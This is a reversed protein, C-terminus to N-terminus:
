GTVTVITNRGEAKARYLAQDAEAKLREPTCDPDLRRTAVGISTTVLPSVSSAEHRIAAAALLDTFRRAVALAQDRDCGPLVAAFEEGGYRAALDQAGRVSGELSAAVVKLTEDGAPHGYRDNFAKFMDVDIMLLAIHREPTPEDPTQGAGARREDGHGDGPGHCAGALFDEFGRRNAIGTLGDRMVSRRLEANVRELERTRRVVLQELSAAHNRMERASCIMEIARPLEIRLLESLQHSSTELDYLLIGRERGDISLPQVLLDGHALEGRIETPLLRHRPYVEDMPPDIRGHRYSVALVTPRDLGRAAGSPGGAAPDDLAIFCRPIGVQPLCAGLAEAVEDLTRCGAMTRSLTLWREQLITRAQLRLASQTVTEVPEDARRTSARVVLQSAVRLDASIRRGAMQRLLLRGAEYGQDALHQDVTTLPPWSTSSDLINDYGSVLVDDPVRLGHEIVASLAGLASPDNLAVIADVDPRRELVSNVREYTPGSLFLGDVVLADDFALGRRECEQRVIRERIVSDVYGPVGRVLMVRKVGCEDLLHTTLSRMGLGTDGHVRPRDRFKEGVTVVPVDMDVLAEILDPRSLVLADALAIVGRSAGTRILDLVLEPTQPTGFGAIVVALLPIRQDDLARRIGSIVRIHYEAVGTVFVIVPRYDAESM